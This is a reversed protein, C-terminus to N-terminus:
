SVVTQYTDDPIGSPAFFQLHWHHAYDAEGPQFLTLQDALFQPQWDPM